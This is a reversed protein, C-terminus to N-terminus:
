ESLGVLASEKSQNLSSSESLHSDRSGSKVRIMADQISVESEIRVVNNSHNQNIPTLMVPTVPPTPTSPTQIRAPPPTPITQYNNSQNFNPYIPSPFPAAYQVQTPTSSFNSYSANYNM